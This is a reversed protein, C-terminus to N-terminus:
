SFAYRLFAVLIKLRSAHVPARPSEFGRVVLRDLISRYAASMLYPAKVMRPACTSMVLDAEAYHDRARTAVLACADNLASQELVATPTFDFLGAQELAERPLYLRGRRADEDLDRLINTLQLARGLHYALMRPAAPLSDDTDAGSNVEESMGFVRVSLRGVASAVRDCYLDLKDWDPACIDEEVDMAMGEIVADFDVRDLNFRRVPEALWACRQHIRGAYLEDLDKRWDDLMALRAARDGEEDAIDDVARCFAYIAYMADRREPELVRMALHFSSKTAISRLQQTAPDNMCSVSM